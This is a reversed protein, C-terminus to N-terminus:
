KKRTKDVVDIWARAVGRKELAKIVSDRQPGQVMVEMVNGKGAKYPEASTSGACTKRLEDALPQAQIFYAEFGHVRTATKNGSRTELVIEIRPALGAKPKSAGSRSASSEISHFPSCTALIRDILMDRPVSGKALIENDSRQTTNFVANALFPDLKIMRKNTPHVLNESEVYHTIIPVLDAKTYSTKTRADATKFLPALSDKPKYLSVVKLTQGVSDDGDSSADHSVAASTVPVEKKPLRYPQFNRIQLDNFDIDLIVVETKTDKSLILKDKDLQKIFKKANKWSTKKINFAETQKATFAPLYPNVLNSIVFSQTLPFSLGFKPASQNSQQQQHVGYLFAQKFVQDIEATSIDPEDVREVVDEGEVYNNRLPAERDTVDKSELNLAVGGAPEAQDELELNELSSVVLNDAQSCWGSLESPAPIGAKGSTSWDWVFDGSWHFTEVAQGKAGQAKTLGSIDILCTGVVLPVTPQDLSAVAVIAGKTAKSPFRPGALGPTM